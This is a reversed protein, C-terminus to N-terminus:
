SRRLGARAISIMRDRTGPGRALCGTVLAKVDDVDVDDRVAGARQAAHLLQRMQSMVSDERCSTVTDLDFGAGALAEALGRNALGEAVLEALFTFFAEGADSAGALSKGLATLREVRSLFVAEFLSEKTPFHRSVTGTGVGARRAIEHVPVSLGGAAFAQVAAEIVRERNRRADARQARGAGPPAAVAAEASTAPKTTVAPIGGDGTRV